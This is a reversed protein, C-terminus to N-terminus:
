AKMMARCGADSVLGVGLKSGLVVAGELHHFADARYRVAQAQWGLRADMVHEVDDEELLKMARWWCLYCVKWRNNM